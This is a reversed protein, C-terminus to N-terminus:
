GSDKVVDSAAAANTLSRARLHEHDLERSGARHDGGRAVVNRSQSPLEVAFLADKQRPQDLGTEKVRNLAPDVLAFELGENVFSDSVVLIKQVFERYVEEEKKRVLRVEELDDPVDRAAGGDLREVPAHIPHIGGRRIHVGPVIVHELIAEDAHAQVQARVNELTRHELQAVSVGLANQVLGRVRPETVGDDEFQRVVQLMAVGVHDTGDRLCRKGSPKAGTLGVIM